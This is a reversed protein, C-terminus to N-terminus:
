VYIKSKVCVTLIYLFNIISPGEIARIFDLNLDRARLLKM